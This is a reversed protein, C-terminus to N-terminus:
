EGVDQWVGVWGTVKNNVKIPHATSIINYIKGESSIVRFDGKFDREEKVCSLWNARLKEIDDPHIISIWGWGLLSEQPTKVKDSYSVSVWTCKGEADTHYMPNAFSTLAEMRASLIAQKDEIRNLGDKISAGGNPLLQEIIFSLKKSLESHQKSLIVVSAKTAEVARSTGTFPYLIATFIGKIWSVVGPIAQSGLFLGVLTIMGLLISIELSVTSLFEKM